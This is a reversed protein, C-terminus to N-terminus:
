VPELTLLPDGGLVDDGDKPIVRLVRAREPLEGGGYRVRNFTKMVELLAVTQGATIQSGETVFPPEGPTPRAYYRGGIPARFVLGGAAVTASGAHAVASAVGAATEDLGYIREGAQVAVKARGREGAIFTVAGRAGAPVMLAHLEGLVDLEGCVEGPGLVEGM